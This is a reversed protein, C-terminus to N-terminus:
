NFQFTALLIPQTRADTEDDEDDDNTNHNLFIREMLDLYVTTDQLAVVAEEYTNFNVVIELRIGLRSKIRNLRHQHFSVFNGMFKTKGQIYETCASYDHLITYLTFNGTRQKRVTHYTPYYTQMLSIMPYTDPFPTSYCVYGGHTMNYCRFISKASGKRFRKMVAPLNLFLPVNPDDHSAVTGFHFQILLIGQVEASTFGHLTLLMSTPSALIGHHSRYYLFTISYFIFNPDTITIAAVAAVLDNNHEELVATAHRRNETLITDIHRWVINFDDKFLKLTESGDCIRRPSYRTNHNQQDRGSM